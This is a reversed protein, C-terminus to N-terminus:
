PITKVACLSLFCKTCLCPSSTTFVNRICVHCNYMRSLQAVLWTTSRQVVAWLHKEAIWFPRTNHDSTATKRAPFVDLCDFNSLHSQLSPTDVEQALALFIAVSFKDCFHCTCIVYTSDYLNINTLTVARITIKNNIIQERCQFFNVVLLCWSCHRNFIIKLLDSIVTGM